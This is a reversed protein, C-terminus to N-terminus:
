SVLSQRSPLTRNVLWKAFMISIAKNRHCQWLFAKANPSQECSSLRVSLPIAGLSSRVQHLS